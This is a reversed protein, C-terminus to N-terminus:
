RKAVRAAVAGALTALGGAGGGAAIRKDATRANINIGLVGLAVTWQVTLSELLQGAGTLLASSEAAHGAAAEYVAGGVALAVAASQIAWAGATVYGWTPRWRRVYPDGATTEAQMTANVIRQRETEATLIQNEYALLDRRLAEAAAPDAAVKAAAADGDDLGTVRKATDVITAAVKEGDDGDLWRGISPLVASAIQAALPLLAFM